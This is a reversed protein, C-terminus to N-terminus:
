FIHLAKIKAETPVLAYFSFYWLCVTITITYVKESKKYQQCGSLFACNKQEDRETTQLSKHKM